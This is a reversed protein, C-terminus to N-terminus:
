YKQVRIEPSISRLSRKVHSEIVQELDMSNLKDHKGAKNGYKNNCLVQGTSKGRHSSKAHWMQAGKNQGNQDIQSKAEMSPPNKRGKQTDIGKAFQLHNCFEIFKYISHGMADFGQLLMKRQWMAPVAFKAIDLLKGELL